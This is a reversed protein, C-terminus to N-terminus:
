GTQQTTEELLEMLSKRLPEEAAAAQQAELAPGNNVTTAAATAEEAERLSLAREEALIAWFQRNGHRAPSSEYDDSRDVVNVATNSSPLYNPDDRNTQQGFTRSSPADSPMSVDAPNHGVWVLDRGALQLLSNMVPPDSVPSREEGDVVRTSGDPSSLFSDRRSLQTGDSHVIDDTVSSTQASVPWKFRIKDRFAKWSKKDHDFIVEMLTRNRSSSQQPRKNVNGLIDDVTFAATALTTQGNDVASM